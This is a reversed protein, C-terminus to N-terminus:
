GGTITVQLRTKLVREALEDLARFGEAVLAGGWRRRAEEARQLLSRKEASLLSRAVLDHLTSLELRKRDLLAAASARNHAAFCLAITMPQPQEKLHERRAELTLELLRAVTEEYATWLEDSRRFDSGKADGEGTERTDTLFALTCPLTLTHLVWTLQTLWDVLASEAEQLRPAFQPNWDLGQVSGAVTGTGTGVLGDEQASVVGTSSLIVRCRQTAKDRAAASRELQDFLDREEGGGGDGGRTQQQRRTIMPVSLSGRGTGGASNVAGRAGEPPHYTLLWDGESMDRVARGFSIEGLPDAEVAAAAQAVGVVQKLLDQTVPARIRLTNLAGRVKGGRGTEMSGGTAKIGEEQIEPKTKNASNAESILVPSVQSDEGGESGVTRSSSSCATLKVVKNLSFGGRTMGKDLAKLLRDRCSRCKIDEVRAHIEDLSIELSPPFEQAFAKFQKATFGQWMWRREAAQRIGLSGGLWQGNHCEDTATKDRDRERDRDGSVPIQRDVESSGSDCGRRSDGG